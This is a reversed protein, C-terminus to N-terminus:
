RAWPRPDKLMAELERRGASWERTNLSETLDLAVGALPTTGNVFAAEVTVTRVTVNGSSAAVLNFEDVLGVLQDAAVYGDVTQQAQTLGWKYLLGTDISAATPVVAGSLDDLVSEHCNFRRVQARNRALHELEAATARGLRHM